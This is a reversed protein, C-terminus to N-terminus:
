PAGGDDPDRCTRAEGSCALAPRGDATWDTWQTTLRSRHRADSGAGTWRSCRNPWSATIFFVMAAQAHREDRPPLTVREM